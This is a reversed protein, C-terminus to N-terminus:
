TGSRGLLVRIYCGLSRFNGVGFEVVLGNFVLGVGCVMGWVGAISALVTRTASDADVAM